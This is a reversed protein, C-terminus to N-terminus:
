RLENAAHEAADHLQGFDDRADSWTPSAQVIEKAEGLSVHLM